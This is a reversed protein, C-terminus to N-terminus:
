RGKLGGCGKLVREINGHAIAEETALPLPAFAAQAAALKEPIGAVSDVSQVDMAWMFRDPFREFVARWEPKLAGDAALAGQPRAPGPRPPSMPGSLDFHMNPHAALLRAIVDPGIGGGGHAIIFPVRPHGSVIKEIAALTEPEVLSVHMNVPTGRAQAADYIKVRRPDSVFAADSVQANPPPLRTAMEGFGCFGSVDRAKVFDDATTDSVVTGQLASLSIWPLVYGPNKKAVDILPAPDPWMLIVGAVGARRFAAVEDDASMAKFLHSHVDVYRVNRPEAARTAPASLAACAAVVALAGAIAMPRPPHISM